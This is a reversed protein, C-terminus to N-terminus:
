KVADPQGITFFKDAVKEALGGIGIIMFLDGSERNKWAFITLIILLILFLIFWVLSMVAVSVGTPMIAFVDIIAFVMAFIAYISSVIM